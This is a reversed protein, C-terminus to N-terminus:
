HLLGIIAFNQLISYLHGLNLTPVVTRISYFLMTQIPLSVITIARLKWMLNRLLHKFLIIGEYLLYVLYIVQSQERKSGVRLSTWLIRVGVTFLFALCMCITSYRIHFGVFGEWCGFRIWCVEHFDFFPIWFLEFHQSNGRECFHIDWILVRGLQIHRMWKLKASLFADFFWGLGTLSFASHTQLIALPM